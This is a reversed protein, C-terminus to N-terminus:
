GGLARDLAHELRHDGDGGYGQIMDVVTGDAGVAAPWEGYSSRRLVDGVVQDWAKVQVDHQVLWRVATKIEDRAADATKTDNSKAPRARGEDAAARQREAKLARKRDGRFRKEHAVALDVLSRVALCAAGGIIIIQWVDM